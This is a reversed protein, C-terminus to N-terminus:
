VWAEPLWVPHLAVIVQNSLTGDSRKIVRDVTVRLKGEPLVADVTAKGYPLVSIMDGRRPLNM